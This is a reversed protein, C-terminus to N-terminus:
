LRRLSNVCKNLSPTMIREPLGTMGMISEKSSGLCIFFHLHVLNYTQLSLWSHPPPPSHVSLLSLFSLWVGWAETPMGSLCLYVALYCTHMWRPWIAWHKLTLHEANKPLLSLWLAQHSLFFALVITKVKKRQESGKGETESHKSQSM